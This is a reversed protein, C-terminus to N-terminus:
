GTSVVWFHLRVSNSSYSFEKKLSRLSCYISDVCFTEAKALRAKIERLKMIHPQYHEKIHHELQMISIGPRNKLIAVEM